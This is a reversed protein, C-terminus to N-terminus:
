PGENWAWDNASVFAFDDYLRRGQAEWTLKSEIGGHTVLAHWLFSQGPELPWGDNDLLLPFGAFSRGEVKLDATAMVLRM